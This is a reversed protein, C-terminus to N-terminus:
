PTSPRSTRCPPFSARAQLVLRAEVHGQEDPPAVAADHRRLVALMGANDATTDAVLEAAGITDALARLAGVTATGIGQGRRSRGIWLGFEYRDGDRRRLRAVGAIEGDAVIALGLERQPGDFGNRRAHHFDRFARQRPETWGPAGVFPPMVEDPEADDVAVRLVEELTEDDIPQLAVDPVGRMM